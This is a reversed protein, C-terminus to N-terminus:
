QEVLPQQGPRRLEGRFEVLAERGEGTPLNIGIVEIRDGVDVDRPQVDVVQLLEPGNNQRACGLVCLAAVLSFLGVLAASTFSRPRRHRPATSTPTSMRTRLDRLRERM